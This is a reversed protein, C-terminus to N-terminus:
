FGRGCSGWGSFVCLPSAQVDDLSIGLTHAETAAGPSFGLDSLFRGM